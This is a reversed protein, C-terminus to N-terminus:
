STLHKGVHGVPHQANTHVVGVRQGFRSLSMGIEFSPFGRAGYQQDGLVLCVDKETKALCSHIFLTWTQCGRALLLMNYLPVSLRKKTVQKHNPRHSHQLFPLM